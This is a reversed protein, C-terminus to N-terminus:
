DFRREFKRATSEIYRKLTAPLSFYIRRLTKRVSLKIRDKFSFKEDFKFYDESLLENIEKLRKPPKPIKNKDPYGLAVLAIVDYFGPIKFIKRIKKQPPLNDIWCSGLGKSYAVLHLNQIMASASQIHDQYEKNDTRNDYIVLILVPADKVFFATGEKILKQRVFPNKIIIFRWGQKNCASPAWVAESLIDKIIKESVKKKDYFRISRRGRISKLLEM